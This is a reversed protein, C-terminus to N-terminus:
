FNCNPNSLLSKKNIRNNSTSGNLFRIKSKVISNPESIYFAFNNPLYTLSIKCNNDLLNMLQNVENTIDIEKNHTTKSEKFIINKVMYYKNSRMVFGVNCEIKDNINTESNNSNRLMTRKQISFVNSKGPNFYLFGTFFTLGPNLIKVEANLTLTEIKTHIDKDRFFNKENPSLKNLLSNSVPIINSTFTTVQSNYKNLISNIINYTYVETNYVNPPIPTTSNCKSVINEKIVTNNDKSFGNFYTFDSKQNNTPNKIYFSIMNNVYSTSIMCNNTDLKNKINNIFNTIELQREIKKNGFTYTKRIYYKNNSSVFDYNYRINNKEYIIDNRPNTYYFIGKTNKQTSIDRTFVYIPNSTTPSYNLLLIGDYIDTSSNIKKGMLELYFRSINFDFFIFKGIYQRIINKEDPTLGNNIFTEDIQIYEPRVPKNEYVVSSINSYNYNAIFTKLENLETTVDITTSIINPEIMNPVYNERQYKIIVLLILIAIIVIILINANKSLNKFFM